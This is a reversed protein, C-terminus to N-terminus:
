TFLKPPAIPRVPPMPPLIIPPKDPMVANRPPGHPTAKATAPVAIATSPTLDASVAASVLCFMSEMLGVSSESPLAVDSVTAAIALLMFSMSVENWKESQILSSASVTPSTNWRSPVSEVSIAFMSRVLRPANSSRAVAISITFVLDPPLASTARSTAAACCCTASWKPTEVSTTRSFALAILSAPEVM